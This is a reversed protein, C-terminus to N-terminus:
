EGYERKWRDLENELNAVQNELECVQEELAGREVELGDAREEAAKKGDIADIIADKAEDVAREFVELEASM